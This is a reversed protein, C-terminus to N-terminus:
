TMLACTLMLRVNLIVILHRGDFGGSSDLQLNMVGRGEFKM